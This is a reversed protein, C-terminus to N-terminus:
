HTVADKGEVAVAEGSIWWGVNKLEKVEADAYAMISNLAEEPLADIAVTAKDSDFDFIVEVQYDVVVKYKAM